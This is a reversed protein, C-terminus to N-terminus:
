YWSTQLATLMCCLWYAACYSAARATLLGTLICGLWYTAWGTHLGPLRAPILPSLPCGKFRRHAKALSAVIDYPVASTQIQACVSDGETWEHACHTCGGGPHTRAPHTSSHPPTLHRRVKNLIWKPVWSMKLDVHMLQLLWVRTHAALRVWFTRTHAHLTRATMQSTHTHTHTFLVAYLVSCLSSYLVAACDVHLM